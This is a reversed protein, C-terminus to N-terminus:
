MEEDVPVEVPEAVSRNTLKTFLGKFMATHYELVEPVMDLADMAIQRHSKSTAFVLQYYLNAAVGSALVAAM